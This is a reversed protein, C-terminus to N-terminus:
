IYSAILPHHPSVEKMPSNEPACTLKSWSRQNPLKV